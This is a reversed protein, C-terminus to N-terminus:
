IELEANEKLRQFDKENKLNYISIGLTESIRLAQGTGGEKGGKPTWCVVFRSLPGAQLQGYIQNVNRMMFLKGARSLRGWAPHHEKAITSTWEQGLFVGEETIYRRNFGDWPLFIEKQDGAGKEFASDAGSAAGSRLIWGKDKLQRAVETMLVQVNEPTARAGIGAYHRPEPTMWM